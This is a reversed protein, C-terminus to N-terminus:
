VHHLHEILLPLAPVLFGHLEYAMGAAQIEIGAVGKQLAPLDAM